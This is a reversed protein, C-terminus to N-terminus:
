LFLHLFLIKLLFRGGWSTLPNRLWTSCFRHDLLHKCARQCLCQDRSPTESKLSLLMRPVTLERLCPLWCSTKFFCFLFDTWDCVVMCFSWKPHVRWWVSPFIPCLFFLFFCCVFLFFTLSKSLRHWTFIIFTDCLFLPKVGSGELLKNCYMVNREICAPGVTNRKQGSCSLLGTSLVYYFVSIIIM